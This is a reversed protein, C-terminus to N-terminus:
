QGPKHGPNDANFLPPKSRMLTCDALEPSEFLRKDANKRFEGAIKTLSSRPIQCQAIDLFHDFRFLSLVLHLGYMITINAKMVKRDFSVVGAPAAKSAEEEIVSFAPHRALSRMLAEYKLLDDPDNRNALSQYQLVFEQYAAIINADNRRLKLRMARGFRDLSYTVQHWYNDPQVMSVLGGIYYASILPHEPDFQMDVGPPM